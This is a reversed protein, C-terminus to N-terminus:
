VVLRRAKDDLWQRSEQEKVNTESHPIGGMLSMIMMMM